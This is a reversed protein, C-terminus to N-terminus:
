FRSEKFTPNGIPHTLDHPVPTVGPAVDPTRTLLPSVPVPLLWTLTSAPAGPASPPYQGGSVKVKSGLRWVWSAGRNGQAGCGGSVWVGCSLRVVRLAGRGGSLVLWRGPCCPGLRLVVQGQSDQVGKPGLAVWSWEGGCLLHAARM